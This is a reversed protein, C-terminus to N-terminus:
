SHRRRSHQQNHERYPDFIMQLTSYRPLPNQLSSRLMSHTVGPDIQLHPPPLSLWAVLRLVLDRCFWVTNGLASGFVQANIPISPKAHHHARALPGIVDNNSGVIGSHGIHLHVSSVRWWRISMILGECRPTPSPHVLRNRHRM